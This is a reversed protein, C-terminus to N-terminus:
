WTVTWKSSRLGPNAWAIASQRGSLSEPEGALDVNNLNLYVDAYAQGSRVAAIKDKYTKIERNSQRIQLTNDFM